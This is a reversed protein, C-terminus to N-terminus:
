MRDLSAIKRHVHEWSEEALNTGIIQIVFSAVTHARQVCHAISLGKFLGDLFGAIFFDGAGTTDVVGEVKEHTFYEIDRNRDKVWCGDKGNTIVVIQNAAFPPCYPADEAKPVGTLACMEQNNGFVISAKKIAELLVTRTGPNEILNQDSLDLSLPIENQRALEVSKLLVGPYYVSYGDLHVHDKARFIEPDIDQHTFEPSVGYFAHMTREHDPTIFCNVMGTFGKGISFRAEVNMNKLRAIIDCGVQDDGVKGLLATPNGLKALVKIVNTCSGGFTGQDAALAIKLTAKKWTADVEAQNGTSTTAGKRLRQELLFQDDVEISRDCLPAGIGLINTM